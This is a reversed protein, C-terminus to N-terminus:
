LVWLEVKIEGRAKSPLNLIAGRQLPEVKNIISQRSFPPSIHTNGKRLCCNELLENALGTVEVLSVEHLEKDAVQHAVCRELNDVEAVIVEGVGM